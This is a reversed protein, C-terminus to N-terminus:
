DEKDEEQRRALFQRRKKETNKVREVLTFQWNNQKAIETLPLTPNADLAVVVRNYLQREISQIPQGVLRVKDQPENENM